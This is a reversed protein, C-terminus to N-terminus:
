SGPRDGRRVPPAAPWAAPRGAASPASRSRAPRRHPRDARGARAAASTALRPERLGDSRSGPPIMASHIGREASPDSQSLQQGGQRDPDVQAHAMRHLLHEPLAVDGKLQPLPGPQGGTFTLDDVVGGQQGPNGGVRVLLRLPEAVVLRDLVGDTPDVQPIGDLARDEGEPVQTAASGRDVAGTGADLEHAPSAAVQLQHELVM